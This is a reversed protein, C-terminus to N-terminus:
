ESRLANVPDQKAAKKAPIFGSVVTLFVSLLLMIVANSIPLNAIDFGILGRTSLNVILSILYTFGVGFLGSLGGIILTEANFLNSVDKKRGGLSRIVGIEKVREVVSVYTIIAIMVCSVVLSLATFAILAVTIMDIMTNILTIILDLNDTYKVQDRDSSTLKVNNVVIDVDENWIDLYKTVETKYNFDTPHIRITSPMSAGGTGRLGLSYSETGGMLSNLMGTQDMSGIFALNNDVTEGNFKYSFTYVIGVNSEVETENNKFIGSYISQNPQAKIYEVIESDKSSELVFKAFDTTYYLGTDLCGYSINEKPEIIGVVKLEEKNDLNDGYASYSFPNLSALPGTNKTFVSDNPYYSFTKAMLEEYSFHFKDLEPDYKSDTPTEDKLADNAKYAINLFEDQTYYGLQALVLDTLTSNKDLVLITENKNEPMRGAKIDYQSLIYEDNDPLQSTLGSMSSIISSLGGFQTQTELLKKYTERITSLSINNKDGEGTYDTYLNNILELGYDLSIEAYYDKPMQLVYDIYEQTINNSFSANNMQGYRKALEDLMREVNIYGDKFDYDPLTSPTLMGMLASYDLGSEAVYVPNGSLMDDQMDSIYTKVGNSVALVASIGIIGISGAITTMITRKRKSWLNKSSLMFATRFTMKAKKRKEILKTPHNYKQVETIEDEEKFPNSDDLVEGDLLNIIRTSYENALDPNHTVMIVLKDKSIEKIIEMIQVSTKTDLAGTPEDALLIDPENVIARAIAVRQCQGGSLQNPKKHYQNTLGVKDLAEKARRQREEKSLGSITLALEVNGLITQHPILNYSQFVFGIRENRYLDWDRDKFDKTSIGEIILDGSTYNDLGGIINLTTTKGCGSPGLISVFENKRFSLDIGKLAEVDGGAVNYTKIIKKLRLM